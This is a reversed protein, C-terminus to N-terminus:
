EVEKGENKKRWKRNKIMQKIDGVLLVLMVIMCIITISMSVVCFGMCVIYEAVQNTVNLFYTAMVILVSTCIASILLCNSNARDIMKRNIAIVNADVVERTRDENKELSEVKAKLENIQEKLDELTVKEEM